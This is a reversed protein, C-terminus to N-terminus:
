LARSDRWKGGDGGHLAIFMVHVPIRMIQKGFWKKPIDAVLELGSDGEQVHVRQATSTLAEIDKFSALHLLEDGTYWSGDKALYIPIPRYRQKDM